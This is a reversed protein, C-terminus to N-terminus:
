TGPGNDARRALYRRVDGAIVGVKGVAERLEERTVGLVRAWYGVEWENDLNIRSSELPGRNKLDNPM